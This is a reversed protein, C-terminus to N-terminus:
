SKKLLNQFTKESYYQELREFADIYLKRYTELKVIEEDIDKIQKNGIQKCNKNQEKKYSIKNDYNKELRRFMLKKKEEKLLGIENKWLETKDAIYDELVESGNQKIYKLTRSKTTLIKIFKTNFDYEISLKRKNGQGDIYDLDKMSESLEEYYKKHPLKGKDLKEKLEVKKSIVADLQYEDLTIYNDSNCLKAKHFDTTYIIKAKELRNLSEIFSNYLSTTDFYTEIMIANETYSYGKEIVNNQELKNIVEQVNNIGEEEEPTPTKKLYKPSYRVVKSDDNEIESIFGLEKMWKSVTYSKGDLKSDDEVLISLLLLDMSKALQKRKSLNKWSEKVMPKHPTILKGVEFKKPRSNMISVKDFYREGEKKLSELQTKTLGKTEARRKQAETGLVCVYDLQSVIKNELKKLDELVINM